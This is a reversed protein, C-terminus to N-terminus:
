LNVRVQCDNSFWYIFSAKPSYVVRYGNQPTFEQTAEMHTQIKRIGNNFLTVYYRPLITANVEFAKSGSRASFVGQRLVGWPQGTTSQFTTNYYKNVVEQWFLLDADEGNSQTYSDAM